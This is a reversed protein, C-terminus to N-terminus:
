PRRQCYHGKFKNQRHHKTFTKDQLIYKHKTILYLGLAIFIITISYADYAGKFTKPFRDKIELM